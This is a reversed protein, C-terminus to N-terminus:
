NDQCPFSIIDTIWGVVNLITLVGEKYMMCLSLGNFFPSEKHVHPSLITRRYEAETKSILRKGEQLFVAIM